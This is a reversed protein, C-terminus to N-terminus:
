IIKFSVLFRVMVSIRLRFCFRVRVQVWFGVHVRGSLSVGLSLQVRVM